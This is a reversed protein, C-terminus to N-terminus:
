ADSLRDAPDNLRGGPILPDRPNTQYWLIVTGSLVNTDESLDGTFRVHWVESSVEGVDMFRWEILLFVKVVDIHIRV